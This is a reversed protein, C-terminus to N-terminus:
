VCLFHFASATCIGHLGVRAEGDVSLGRGSQEVLEILTAGGRLGM